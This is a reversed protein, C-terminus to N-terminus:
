ARTRAPQGPTGALAHHVTTAFWMALLVVALALFPLCPRASSPWPSSAPGLAASCRGRGPGLSRWRSSATLAALVTTV